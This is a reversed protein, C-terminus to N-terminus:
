CVVVAFGTVVISRETVGVFGVMFGVLETGAATTTTTTALELEDVVISV